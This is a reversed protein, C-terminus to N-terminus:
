VIELPAFKLSLAKIGVGKFAVDVIINDGSGKVMIVTGEGFKAHRVKVGTKFKGYEVNSNAVPKSSSVMSKAYNSSYGGSFGSQRVGDESGLSYGSGFGYSNERYNEKRETDQTTKPALVEKAEKVFISPSMFERRGYMYRSKARTLYLRERARTIAVYMLRREEELEDIDDLARNIPLIGNDLGVTFVMKFELGKVAHVTAVTVEEGDTINDTDTSLTVSNLYDSLNSGPNDKIFQESSNELESINLLKSTNEENKEEFQALFGTQEIIFKLTATVDNNNSYERFSDILAKFNVLKTRAGSSITTHSLYDIGEYMSYGYATCFEKLESLTKDGIGRKPVAVSRLFAQDDFTNAILKLYSLLDKIEKREFFRFGGYVRFPINYKAFEQEFARSLANVRMLVAFDSYNYNGRAMLSKIQLAVYSAEENETESVYMDIKAGTDNETWLKKDRRQSNNAIVCNALELIKKTSRYNQELKYVKAGRYIDDFSLINEIKAGRWGYISQDDDGVVFLNGHKLALRQAIAFQVKNTDQFEDIHVYSFRESYYDAVSPFDRFLIYTKFLLDDFDLSNSSALRKDYEAYIKAIDKAHLFESNAREYDDPTLCDNKATSICNKATKFIKEVEYGLDNIVSKLVRDKDTEDYISFNQNFGLKQIDKRLIRVCMSHITSVWMDNVVEGCIGKLREKMEGAAKNTFTIALIKLPDVKKELILYAIRSTLVRTKGSGAGAIVLVAGETDLVPKRQDSNLKELIQEFNEMGNLKVM